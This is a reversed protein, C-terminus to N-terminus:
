YTLAVESTEVDTEPKSTASKCRTLRTLLKESKVATSSRVNVMGAPDKKASKPGEPHPLVVVSRM